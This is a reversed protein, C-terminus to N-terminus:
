AQDLLYNNSILWSSYLNICSIQSNQFNRLTVELWDFDYVPNNAFMRLYKWWLKQPDIYTERNTMDHSLMRLTLRKIGLAKCHQIFFPLENTTDWTVICSIKIPVNIQQIITQVDLVGPVWMMHHYTIEDFSPLSLSIRDYLSAIDKQQLLLRGNTHLSIKAQPIRTRVYAVLETQYQYLLPDTTTWTLSIETIGKDILIQLFNDINKLPFLSLNNQNLQSNLSKGICFPCRANCPWSLM